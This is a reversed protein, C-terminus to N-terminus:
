HLIALPDSAVTTRLSSTITIELDLLSSSSSHFFFTSLVNTVELRWIESSGQSAANDFTFGYLLTDVRM